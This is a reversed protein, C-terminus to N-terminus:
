TSGEMVFESVCLGVNVDGVRNLGFERNGVGIVEAQVPESHNM